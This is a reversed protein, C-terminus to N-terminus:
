KKLIANQVAELFGRSSETAGTVADINVSNYAVVLDALEEMATFRDEASDIISIDIIQNGNMMVQVTVPGRYGQGAGTFIEDGDTQSSKFVACGSMIILLILFSLFVYKM